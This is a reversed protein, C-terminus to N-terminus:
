HLILQKAARPQFHLIVFRVFYLITNPWGVGNGWYWDLTRFPLITINQWYIHDPCVCSFFLFLHVTHCRCKIYVGGQIWERRCGCINCVHLTTSSGMMNWFYRPLQPSLSNLSGSCTAIMHNFKISGIPWQVLPKSKPKWGRTQMPSIRSGHKLNWDIFYFKIKNNLM